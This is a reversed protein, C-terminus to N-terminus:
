GSVFIPVFILCIVTLFQHIPGSAIRFWNEVIDVCVGFKTFIWEYKNVSDDPFLFLSPCLVSLLISLCVCPCGIHFWLVHGSDQSLFNVLYM